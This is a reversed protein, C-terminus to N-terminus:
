SYVIKIYISKQFVYYMEVYLSTVSTVNLIETCFGRFYRSFQKQNRKTYFNVNLIKRKNGTYKNQRVYYCMFIIDLM